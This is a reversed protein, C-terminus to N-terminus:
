GGCLDHVDIWSRKFDVLNTEQLCDGGRRSVGRASQNGSASRSATGHIEGRPFPTWEVLRSPIGDTGALPGLLHKRFFEDAGNYRLLRTQGIEDGFKYDLNCVRKSWGM